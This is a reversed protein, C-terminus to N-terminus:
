VEDVGEGWKIYSTISPHGRLAFFVEEIMLLLIQKPITNLLTNMMM